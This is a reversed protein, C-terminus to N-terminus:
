HTGVLLRQSARPELGACVLTSVARRLPIVLPEHEIQSELRASSM